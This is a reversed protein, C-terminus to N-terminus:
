RALAVSRPRALVLLRILIKCGVTAETKRAALARAHLRDGLMSKYRFFASEVTGQQHYGSGKKWRRRGVKAIRRITNDREKSRPKGGTESASRTPPVVVRARRSGAQGYIAVTYHAADGTVSALKGKTRKIVELRTNADDGSSDTLVQARIMGALDLGLHLKRWGRKGRGGHKAAAWEGEGVISLGTSDIILHIPKKSVIPVLKANLSKSRRALTTHNPAELSLGMLDSLSRLFGEAQRLPLRFVLRLTPATEIALDTFKRPAGNRGSPRATWAQIAGPSAAM